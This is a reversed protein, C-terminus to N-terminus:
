DLSNEREMRLLKAKLEIGGPGGYGHLGGDSGIVRHCPIVLPMPNTAEARGVARAAAPKGVQRAIEAYTTTKGYPVALTVQLAKRQFEQMYKWDVTLDFDRRKGDLYEAIQRLLRQLGPDDPRHLVAVPMKEGQRALITQPKRSVEEQSGGFEVLVLGDEGVAVWVLGVLGTEMCSIRFEAKM